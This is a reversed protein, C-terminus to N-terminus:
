INQGRVGVFRSVMRFLKHSSFSKVGSIPATLSEVDRPCRILLYLFAGLVPASNGCQHHQGKPFANNVSGDDSFTPLIKEVMTNRNIVGQLHLLPSLTFKDDGRRNRFEVPRCFAFRLLDTDHRCGALDKGQGLHAKFRNRYILAVNIFQLNNDAQETAPRKGPTSEHFQQPFLRPEIGDDPISVAACVCGPLIYM